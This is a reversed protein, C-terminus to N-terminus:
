QVQGFFTQAQHTLAHQPARTHLEALSAAAQESAGLRLQLMVLAHWAQLYNPNLRAARQFFDLAREAQHQNVLFTGYNYHVKPYYPQATLATQFEAEAQELEGAQAYRIARDVLAPVYAPDLALTHSLHEMEQELKGQAAFLTALLYQGPATQQAQQSEDLLQIAAEYDGQWRHIEAMRLSIRDPPSDAAYLARLREFLALAQDFQGLQTEAQALFEVFMRNNPDRQLVDTAIEKASLWQQRFLANKAQSLLSLEKVRDQPPVGDTRLVEAVLELTDGAGHLYGLSQLRRIVQPDLEAPALPESAAHEHLFQALKSHLDCATEAQTEILNDQEHRDAVIDYLEPRPGHIYKYPGDFLTRLEGWGSSLRPSLTEAYHSPTARKTQGTILPVLSQGHVGAPLPIGLLELLTPFIDVTGVRREIVQGRPGDPLRIILPVHLTTNYNLVSHTEENHEGLGEGHDATLVIITREYVGLQKLRDLVVGLTEDAYAIEGGYLNHLYTQNYPAPPEFPQHPDFYHLWVFFPQEAHQDLWPFIAANVRSAKREDFFLRNKPIVRRGQYDEFEASIHDEYVDFGQNLGFQSSVPYAGIAAATAYGQESLVEALTTQEHGVNFLGNDRVGHALPYKGTFITTHSPLTIPVASYAQRFLVGDAALGDVVPTEIAQNGYVGIHDARTTDFTVVLVNWATPRSCSASFFLGLLLLSYVRINM